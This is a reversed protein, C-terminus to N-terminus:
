AGFAYVTQGRIKLAQLVDRTSITKRKGHQTCITAFQVASKLYTDVVQRTEDYIMGSVRKCGGRRALRQIAPDTVGLLAEHGRKRHRKGGVKGFGKGGAKGSKGRSSPAM